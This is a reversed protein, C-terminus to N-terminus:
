EAAEATVCDFEERIRIGVRVALVCGSFREGTGLFIAEGISTMAHDFTKCDRSLELACELGAKDESGNAILERLELRWSLLRQCATEDTVIEQRM